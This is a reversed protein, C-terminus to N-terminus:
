ASSCDVEAPTGLGFLTLQGLSQTWAPSSRRDLGLQLSGLLSAPRMWPMAATLSPAGRLLREWDSCRRDVLVRPGLQHCVDRLGSSCAASPTNPLQGPLWWYRRYHRDMGLAEGRIARADMAEDLAAERERMEEEHDEEQAAVVAQQVACPQCKMDCALHHKCPLVVCRCPREALRLGGERAPECPAAVSCANCLFRSTVPVRVRRLHPLSCAPRVEAQKKAQQLKQRKRRREKQQREWAGKEKALREQAESRRAKWEQLEKRDRKSGKYEQM